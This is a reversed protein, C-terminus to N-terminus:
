FWCTEIQLVKFKKQKICQSLCSNPKSLPSLHMKRERNRWSKVELHCRLNGKTNCGLIASLGSQFEENFASYVFDVHMKMTPQFKLMWIRLVFPFLFFFFQGMAWWVLFCKGEIVLPSTNLFSSITSSTSTNSSHPKGHTSLQFLKGRVM